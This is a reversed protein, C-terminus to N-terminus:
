NNRVQDTYVWFAYSGKTCHYIGLSGANLVDVLNEDVEKRDKCVLIIKKTDNEDIPVRCGVAYANEGDELGITAAAASM